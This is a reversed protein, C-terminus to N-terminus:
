NTAGTGPTMAALLSSYNIGDAGTPDYDHALFPNYVASPIFQTATPLVPICYQSAPLNPDVALNDHHQHRAAIDPLAFQGSASLSILTSQKELEDWLSVFHEIPLENCQKTTADSLYSPWQDVWAHSVKLFAWNLVPWILKLVVLSDFPVASPGVEASSCSAISGIAALILHIDLTNKADELLARRVDAVPTDARQWAMLIERDAECDFMAAVNDFNLQSPRSSDGSFRFSGHGLKPGLECLDCTKLLRDLSGRGTLQRIMTPILYAQEVPVYQALVAGLQEMFFPNKEAAYFPTGHKAMDYFVQLCARGAFVPDTSVARIRSDLRVAVARREELESATEARLQVLPPVTPMPSIYPVYPTQVTQDSVKLGEDCSAEDFSAACALEDLESIETPDEAPSAAAAAAATDPTCHRKAHSSSSMLPMVVGRGTVKRRTGLEAYDLAQNAAAIEDASPVPLPPSMQACQEATAVFGAAVLQAPTLTAFLNRTQRSDMEIPFLLRWNPGQRRVWQVLESYMGSELPRETTNHGRKFTTLIQTNRIRNAWARLYDEVACPPTGATRGNYFPQRTTVATVLQELVAAGFVANQAIGIRVATTGEINLEPTAIRSENLNYRMRRAPKDSARSGPEYLSPNSRGTCVSSCHLACLEAVRNLVADQLRGVRDEAPVASLYTYISRMSADLMSVVSNTEAYVVDDAPRLSNAMRVGITCDRRRASGHVVVFYLGAGSGNLSLFSRVFYRMWILQQGLANACLDRDLIEGAENRALVYQWWSAASCEAMQLIQRITSRGDDLVTSDLARAMEDAGTHSFPLAPTKRDDGCGLAMDDRYVTLASEFTYGNAYLTGTCAPFSAIMIALRLLYAAVPETPGQSLFENCCYAGGYGNRDRPDSDPALSLASMRSAFSLPTVPAAALCTADDTLMAHPGDM